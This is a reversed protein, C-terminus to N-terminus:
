TPLNVPPEGKTSEIRGLTPTEAVQGPFHYLTALEESNLVFWKKKHPPHFYARLRYANFIEKKRTATRWGFIDQWPYLFGTGFGPKFGNLHGTNYQAFIAGLAGKHASNFSDKEAAYILRIGVDYGSKTISRELAGVIEKEVPTLTVGKNNDDDEGSGQLKRKKVIKEIEVKVDDKWKDTKKMQDQVKPVLEFMDEVSKIGAFPGGKKKDESKHARLIIQIWAQEGKGLGGLYELTQNLPDIKFEEKPDKDLGYDVYTKIPYPDPKNLALEMGQLDAKDPDFLFELTYDPVETIETGPYQAYISNQIHKVSGKWTWIFFRVQGEISVLELSFWPRVGGKWYRDVFTAEGTPNWFAGMVVEMALPSKSIEKPIRIELLVPEKGTIFLARRSAVWLKWFAFLLIVPLWLPAYRFLTGLIDGIPSLTDFLYAIM